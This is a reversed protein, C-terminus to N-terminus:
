CLHDSRFRRIDAAAPLCSGQYDSRRRQLSAIGGHHATDAHCRRLHLDGLPAFENPVFKQSTLHWPSSEPISPIAVAKLPSASRSDVICNAQPITFIRKAGHWLREVKSASKLFVSVM